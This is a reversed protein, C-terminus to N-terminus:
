DADGQGGLLKLLADSEIPKVLHHDFGAARSRERDEKQGYGTVAVILAGATEPRARLRRAVEYGDIGPLGIDLVVADPVFSQAIALAAMGEYAIEVDNGGLKLMMALADVADRNDDVVLIRRAPPAAITAPVGADATRAIGPAPLRVVFESGMREGASHAEVTGGHLETLQKVVSLGIGLGGLSRDLSREAQLFLNFVHPLIQPSMGVGNDAVRIVLWAGDRELSVRIIGGAETYKAANNVLNGIVQTLRTSDGRLMQQQSLGHTELRHGRAELLPRNMEIARLVMAAADVQEDRLAIKGTSIRSVDMLDDVLRSLHRTQRDIVERAKRVQPPADPSVLEMIKVASSIPALPNRLEHALMALFEDKRQDALLLAVEARKRESVDLVIGSSSGPADARSDAKGRVEIWRAEAGGAPPLEVECRYSAHRVLADEAMERLRARDAEPLFCWDGGDSRWAAGFLVTANDSFRTEGSHLDWTWAAMNAAQLGERLREESERVAREAQELPTLDTNTGFWQVVSGGADRLPALQTLFRRAQRDAGRMSITLSFAEGSAIGARWQSIVGPTDAEDLSQRWGDGAAQGPAIGTYAYWRDNYWEVEGAASAIWAMQPITNALQHFRESENQLQAHQRHLRDVMHNISHALSAVERSGRVEARRGGFGDRVVSSSFGELRRLDHTLALALRAGLLLVATALALVVALILAYHPLLASYDVPSAGTRVLTLGLDSYVPPVSVARQSESSGAKRGGAVLRIARDKEIDDLRVKYILAGEPTQTRTYRLLRVALLEPGDPADMVTATDVAKELQRRLWALQAPSFQAGSSESIANGEFDTLMLQVPVGNVQRAGNLYPRLYTERGASDVLANALIASDAVEGLRTALAQLSGHVSAEHFDMEKTQLARLGSAHQQAVLAWSAFLTLLLAAAALAAASFAFRRALSGAALRDFLM